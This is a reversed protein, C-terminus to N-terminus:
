RTFDRSRDIVVHPMSRFYEGREISERWLTETRRCKFRNKKTLEFKTGSLANKIRHRLETFPIKHFNTRIIYGAYLCGTPKAPDTKWKEFIEAIRIVERPLDGKPLLLLAIRRKTVPIRKIWNRKIKM